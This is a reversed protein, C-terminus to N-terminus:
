LNYYRFSKNSILNIEIRDLDYTAIKDIQIAALNNPIIRVDKVIKKKDVCCILVSWFCKKKANLRYYGRENKAVVEKLM